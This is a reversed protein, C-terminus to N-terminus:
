VSGRNNAKDEGIILMKDAAQQVVIPNSLDLMSLSPVRVNQWVLEHSELDLVEISDSSGGFVYLKTGVAYLSHMGQRAENMELLMIIWENTELDYGYISKHATTVFIMNTGVLTAATANANLNPKALDTRAIKPKDVDSTRKLSDSVKRLNSYKTTTLDSKKITILTDQDVQVVLCNSLDLQDDTM